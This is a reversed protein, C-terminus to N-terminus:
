CHMWLCIQLIGPTPYLVCDNVRLFVFLLCFFCQPFEHGTSTILVSFGVMLQSIVSVILYLVSMDSGLCADELTYLYLLM